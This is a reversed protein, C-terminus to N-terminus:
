SPPASSIITRAETKKAVKRRHIEDSPSLRTPGSHRKATSRAEPGEAALCFEASRVVEGTKKIDSTECPDSSTALATAAASPLGESKRRHVRVKEFRISGPM